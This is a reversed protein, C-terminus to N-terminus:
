IKIRDASYAGRSQIGIYCATGLFMCFGKCTGNVRLM